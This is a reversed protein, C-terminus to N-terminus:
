DEGVPIAIEPTHFLQIAVVLNKEPIDRKLIYASPGVEHSERYEEAIPQYVADQAIWRVGTYGGGLISAALGVAMWNNRLTRGISGFTDAVSDAAESVTQTIYALGETLPRLKVGENDRMEKIRKSRLEKRLNRFTFMSAPNPGVEILHQVYESPKEDSRRAIEDEALSIQRELYGLRSSAFDEVLADGLRHTAVYSAEDLGGIGWKSVHEKVHNDRLLGAKYGDYLVIAHLEDINM